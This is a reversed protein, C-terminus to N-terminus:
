YLPKLKTFPNKSFAAGLPPHFLFPAASKQRGLAENWAGYNSGRERETIRITLNFVSVRHPACENRSENRCPKRNEGDRFTIHSDNPAAGRQVMMKAM